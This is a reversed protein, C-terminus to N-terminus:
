ATAATRKEVFHALATQLLELDHDTYYRWGSVADRPPSPIRGLRELRRLTWPNVGVLRAADQVTYRNRHM